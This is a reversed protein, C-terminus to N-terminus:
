FQYVLSLGNKSSMIGLKKHNELYYSAKKLYQLGQIYSIAAFTFGILSPINAYVYNNLNLNDNSFMISTSTFLTISAISAVTTKVKSKYYLDLFYGGNSIGDISQNNIPIGNPFPDINSASLQNLSFCFLILYFTKKM